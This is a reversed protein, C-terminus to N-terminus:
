TVCNGTGTPCVSDDDCGIYNDIPVTGPTRGGDDTADTTDADTTDADTTDADGDDAVDATDGDPASADGADADPTLADGENADPTDTTPPVDTATAADLPGSADESSGVDQVTVDVDGEALDPETDDSGCGWGAVGIAFGFVIVARSVTRM